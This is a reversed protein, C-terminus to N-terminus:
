LLFFLLVIYFMQNYIDWNYNINTYTDCICKFLKKRTNDKKFFLIIPCNDQYVLQPYLAYSKHRQNHQLSFVWLDHPSRCIPFCMNVCQQVDLNLFVSYFRENILYSHLFVGEMKIIGNDNYYPDIAWPFYGYYFIDYEQSYNKLFYNTKYEIEPIDNEPNYVIIDDELIIINAYGKEKADRYTSIHNTVASSINCDPIEMKPRINWTLKEPPIKWHDIEKRCREIRPCGEYTTVYIQDVLDWM